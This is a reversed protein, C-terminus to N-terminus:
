ERLFEMLYDMADKNGMVSLKQVIEHKLDRDKENRALEVLARANNQVFLGNIVAERIERRTDTQYMQVLFQGTRKEGILGLNRIAAVKLDLNKETTAIENLKDASGGIFMAQIIKKKIEITTETNYLEALEARAGNVGLQM